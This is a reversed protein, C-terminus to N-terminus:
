RIMYWNKCSWFEFGYFSSIVPQITLMVEMSM